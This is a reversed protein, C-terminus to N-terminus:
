QALSSKISLLEIFNPGTQGLTISYAFQLDRMRVQDVRLIKHVLYMVISVWFSTIPADVAFPPPLAGMAENQTLIIVDLSAYQCFPPVNNRKTHPEHHHPAYM